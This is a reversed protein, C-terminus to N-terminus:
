KEEHLAVDKYEEEAQELLRRELDRARELNIYRGHIKDYVMQLYDDKLIMYTQTLKRKLRKM